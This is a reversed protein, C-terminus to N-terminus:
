NEGYTQKLLILGRYAAEQEAAKKTSGSGEGIVRDGILARMRFIKRHEPGSEGAEEYHLVGRNKAQVLEQLTTKADYFLRRNEIDTLIYKRIFASAPALGGDLYIAGIVSELADSLISKLQRGGTKEEGNSLFIYDGLSLSCAVDNLALECVLAARLKSMEGENMEPYSRFLFDSSVLELVADGLFEYRENDSGKQMNHENAYSSHTLAHKLFSADRFEYGIMEQLKM